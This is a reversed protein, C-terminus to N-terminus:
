RHQDIVPAEKEADDTRAAKRRALASERCGDQLPRATIRGQHAKRHAQHGRDAEQDFARGKEAGQHRRHHGKGPPMSERRARLVLPVAIALLAILILPGGLVLFKDYPVVMVTGSYQTAPPMGNEGPEVVTIISSGIAENGSVAYSVNFNGLSDTMTTTTNGDPVTIDLRRGSLPTGSGTIFTGNINLRDDKFVIFPLGTIQITKATDSFTVNLKQSASGRLSRSDGPEFAAYLEHAGITANEPIWVIVSYQGTSDTTNNGARVGDVYAFISAGEVPIGDETMMRGKVRGMDGVSLMTDNDITLSTNKSTVTITKSESNSGMYVGNPARKYSVYFTNKNEPVYATVNFTYTFSGNGDTIIKEVPGDNLYLTVPKGALLTGDDGSLLGTFNVRDGYSVIDKDIGLSLLTDVNYIELLKEDSFVRPRDGSIAEAHVYIYDSSINVPIRYSLSGYGSSDLTYNGVYINNFYINVKSGQVSTGNNSSLTTSVTVNEGVFTRNPEVSLLLDSRTNNYGPKGYQVELRSMFDNINNLSARYSSDDINNDRLVKEIVTTNARLRDYSEVLSEYSIRAKEASMNASANDGEALYDIYQTYDVDYMESYTIFDQLEDRSFNVNEAITQYVSESMNMRYLLDLYVNVSDNYYLYTDKVNTFNRSMLEESIYELDGQMWNILYGFSEDITIDSSPYLSNPNEHVVQASTPMMASVVLLFASLLYLLKYVNKKLEGLERGM